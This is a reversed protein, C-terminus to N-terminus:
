RHGEMTKLGVHSEMLPHERLRRWLLDSTLTAQGLDSERRVTGRFLSSQKEPLPDVAIPLALQNPSEVVTALRLSVYQQIRLFHSLFPNVV